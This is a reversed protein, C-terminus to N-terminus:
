YFIWLAVYFAYYMFALFLCDLVINLIFKLKKM